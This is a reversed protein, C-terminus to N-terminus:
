SMETGLESIRKREQNIIRELRYNVKKKKLQFIHVNRYSQATTWKKTKRQM